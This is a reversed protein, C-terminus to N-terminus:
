CLWYLARAAGAAAASARDAKSSTKIAKIVQKVLKVVEAQAGTSRRRKRPPFIIKVIANLPPSLLLM